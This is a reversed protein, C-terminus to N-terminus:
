KEDVIIFVCDIGTWDMWELGYMINMCVGYYCM